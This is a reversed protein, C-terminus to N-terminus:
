QVWFEDIEKLYKRGFVEENRDEEEQTLMYEEGDVFPEMHTVREIRALEARVIAKEDGILDRSTPVRACPVSIVPFYDDDLPTIWASRSVPPEAVFALSSAPQDKYSKGVLAGADPSTVLTEFRERWYAYDPETEFKLQRTYDVFEGLVPPYGFGLEEGSWLRKAHFIKASPIRTWPLSGRLISIISYALSEM